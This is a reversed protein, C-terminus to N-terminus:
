ARRRRTGLLGATALMAVVGPAPVPQNLGQVWTDGVDVGTLDATALGLELLLMAFDESILLDGWVEFMDVAPAADTIAVDFLAIGLDLNDVVQFAEPGAAYAISFNGLAVDASGTFFVAGRHEISGSFTGGFDDSDYTFTTPMSASLPSTIAFAVSDELNGPNIVGESIGDFALGTAAEILGFDLAVNTQGGVVNVLEASASSAVGGAVIASVLLKM